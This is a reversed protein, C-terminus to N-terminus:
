DLIGESTATVLKIDYDELVQLLADLEDPDRHLRTIDDAVLAVVDSAGLRDQLADWAVREAALAELGVEDVDEYWDPEWGFMECVQLINASQLEIAAESAPGTGFQRVYCLAVNGNKDQM